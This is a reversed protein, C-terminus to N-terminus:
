VGSIKLKQGPQLKSNIQLQNWLILDAIKVKHKRAIKDLSDGTQVTYSRSNTKSKKNTTASTMTPIQIKQGPKLASKESLKNLKALEILDVKFQRSLDWLNDGTKVEYSRSKRVPNKSIHQPVDAFGPLSLKQGTKLQDSTLQNARKLAAVTTQHRKAISGLSDGSKVTYSASQPAKQLPLQKSNNEFQSLKDVPLVLVYPGGPATNARRFAPNLQRLETLSLGALHAAQAMDVSGPLKAFGIKPKNAIFAWRVGHQDPHKVMDILALWKPMYITSKRPLNLSWFDIPKGAKKNRKIAKEITGEGSNYGAVANLWDQGLMQYLYQLYDLTAATSAIPDKRGDYWENRKLGFNRATQPVMQWLGAPAGAQALPNFASEVIPLLALEVPMNRKELELVIHYLFPEARKSVQDLFNQHRKYFKRQARIDANDPVKISIQHAIRQWVDDYQSLETQIKDATASTAQPPTPAVKIQHQHETQQQNQTDASTSRSTSTGACSALMFAAVFLAMRKFLVM